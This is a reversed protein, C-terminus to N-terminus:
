VCLLVYLLSSTVLIRALMFESDLEQSFASGDAANSCLLNASVSLSQHKSSSQLNSIAHHFFRNWHSWTWPAPLSAPWPIVADVSPHFLDVDHSTSEDPRNLDLIVLTAVGDPRCSMPVAAVYGV